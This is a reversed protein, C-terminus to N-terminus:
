KVEYDLTKVQTYQSTFLCATMIIM